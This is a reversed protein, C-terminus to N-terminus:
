TGIEINLNIAQNSEKEMQKKIALVWDVGSRVSCKSWESIEELSGNPYYLIMKDQKEEWRHGSVLRKKWFWSRKWRFIYSM